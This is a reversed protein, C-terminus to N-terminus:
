RQNRGSVFDVYRKTLVARPLALGHTIMAEDDMSSAEPWTEFIQEIKDFDLIRSTEPDGKAAELEERLRDIQPTLRAHWDSNHLGYRYRTRQKEPLRGKGLERALWRNQGDHLFMEPPLGLCFEVFPRYATADRWRFGYVQEFGHIVDGSQMEGRDFMAHLDAQRSAPQWRGRVFGTGNAREVADYRDLAAKRATSIAFQPATASKGKIRQWAAWVFDPLLPYVAKKLLTVPVQALSDSRNAAVKFLELWHGKLLMQPYAWQGSNSFTANGMEADLMVDCGQERIRECIPGYLAMNCLGAPAQGMAMILKDWDHDFRESRAWHAEIRPHAAAFERVAPWDDGFYYESEDPEQFDPHPRWTFSNLRVGDPLYDVARSAVNSSDLGGSLFVGPQRAGQMTTRCADQLLHDAAEVYDQRKPLVISRMALHDYFTEERKSGDPLLMVAQGIDVRFTSRYWGDREKLNLFQSDVLKRENLTSPLGAALLVRPTTAVATFENGHCYHLPPARWPSRALRLTGDPFILLSAYDGVIHTDLDGGWRDWAAAYIEDPFPRVGGLLQSLEALNDINGCILATTGSPSTSAQFRPTGKARRSLPAVTTRHVSGKFLYGQGVQAVSAAAGFIGLSAAVKAAVDDDSQGNTFYRRFYALM